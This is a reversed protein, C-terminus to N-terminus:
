GITVFLTYLMMHVYLLLVIWMRLKHTFPTTIIKKRVQLNWLVAEYKFIQLHQWLQCIILIMECLNRFYQWVLYTKEILEYVFNTWKTLTCIWYTRMYFKTMSKARCFLVQSSNTFLDSCHSNVSIFKHTLM